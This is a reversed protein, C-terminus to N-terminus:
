RSPTSAVSSEIRRAAEPALRRALALELDLDREHDEHGNEQDLVIRTLVVRFGDPMVMGDARYRDGGKRRWGTELSVSGAGPAPPPGGLLGFQQLLGADGQYPHTQKAPSLLGQLAGEKQGVAVADAGTLPCGKDALLQRVAQWVEAPPQPYRLADLEGELQRERRLETRASACGSAIVAGAALAALLRTM